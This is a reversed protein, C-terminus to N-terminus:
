KLPVRFMANSPIYAPTNDRSGMLKHINRGCVIVTNRNELFVKALSLGIGSAGGTILVTNGAIKM